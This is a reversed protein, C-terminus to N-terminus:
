LRERSVSFGGSPERLIVLRYEAPGLTGFDFSINISFQDSNPPRAASLIRSVNGRNRIAQELGVTLAEQVFRLADVFNSKGSGNPGVLITLPRLEVDCHVISKYNKLVVRTIRAPSEAAM